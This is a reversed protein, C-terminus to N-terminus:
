RTLCSNERFASDNLFRNSNSAEKRISNGFIYYVNPFEAIIRLANELYPHMKPFETIRLPVNELDSRVYCKEFPEPM